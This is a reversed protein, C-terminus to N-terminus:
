LKKISPDSSVIQNSDNWTISGSITTYEGYRTDPISGFWYYTEFPRATLSYTTVNDGAYSVLDVSKVEYNVGGISYTKQATLYAKAESVLVTSRKMNVYLVVESGSNLKTGAAPETAYATNEAAEEDYHWHVAVKYGEAELAAIAEDKSMDKTEPVTYAQTVEVVIPMASKGETGAEPSVSIVVGEADNSKVYRYEVSNFGEASIKAVAEDESLGVIDPVVRPTSVHLIVESGEPARRGTAPDTLLVIGAVEDSKVLMSRTSFGKQEIVFSANAESEGVVDPISKGGWLEMAYTGWTICAASLLVLLAGITLFKKRSAAKEKEEPTMEERKSGFARQAGDESADKALFSKSRSEGVALAPMEMTNGMRAAQEPPVYSSDVLMELGSLDATQSADIDSFDFREEPEEVTPLASLLSERSPPALSQGCENCFKATSVNDTQCAPCKM